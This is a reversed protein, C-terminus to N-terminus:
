RCARVETARFGASKAEDVMSLRMNESTSPGPRAYFGLCLALRPTWRSRGLPLQATALCGNMAAYGTGIALWKVTRLVSPEVLRTIVGKTIGCRYGRMIMWKATARSVPVREYIIAERCGGSRFGRRHMEAFFVGDGGGTLNFREDFGGPVELVSSMKLLSGNEGFNRIPRGTYRPVESFFGGKIVWDPVGPEYRPLDQAKVIDLSCAQATRYLAQLWESEVLQDDDVIAIYDAGLAKAEEISRNRVSCHGRAREIFYSVPFPLDDKLELVTGRSSGNADNDIVVLHMHFEADLRTDRLSLLLDRFFQPRRYTSVCVAILVQPKGEGKPPLHLHTEM